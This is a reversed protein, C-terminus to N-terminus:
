KSKRFFLSLINGRPSSFNLATSSQYDNKVMLVWTFLASNKARIVYSFRVTSNHFIIYMDSQKPSFIKALNNVNTNLLLNLISFIEFNTSWPYHM